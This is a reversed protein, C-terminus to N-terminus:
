ASRRSRVVRVAGGPLGYRMYDGLGSRLFRRRSGVMRVAALLWRDERAARLFDAKRMRVEALAEGLSLLADAEAAPERERRPNV